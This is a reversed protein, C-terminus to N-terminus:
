FPHPGFDFEVPMHERHVKWELGDEWRNALYNYVTGPQLSRIEVGGTEDGLDGGHQLQLSLVRALAGAYSAYFHTPWARVSTLGFENISLSYSFVAFHPRSSRKM